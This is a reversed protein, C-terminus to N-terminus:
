KLKPHRSKHGVPFHCFAKCTPGLQLFFITSAMSKVPGKEKSRPGQSNTIMIETKDEGSRHHQETEGCAAHCLASCGCAIIESGRSDVKVERLYNSNLAIDCHHFEVVLFALVESQM